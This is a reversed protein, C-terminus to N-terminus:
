NRLCPGLLSLPRTLEIIRSTHQTLVRGRHFGLRELDALGYRDVHGGSAYEVAWVRTIGDFRGDAIATGIPLTRDYWTDTRWFPAALLPDRLPTAIPYTRLALRTRRSPRTGEDFLVADGPRAVEQLHASIEAWDSRNKAYPGRESAWPVIAAAVVVATGIVLAPRWRAALFFLALTMLLAIAPTCLALYRATFGAVIPSTGILVGSPVILWAVILLDAPHRVLGARRRVWPVVAVAVGGLVLAWGLVAFWDTGFWTSVFVSEPTVVDREALFAIQGKQLAGAVILPAAAVAAAGAAFFFPRLVRRRRTIVLLVLAHGVAVLATYMFLYTGFALLVGYAIWLGRVRGHRTLAVVLILTLWTAVTMTMAYSRAEEGVYTTRPLVAVIVGAAVGFPLSRMRRGLLVVGAACIGVALASPFRIAFPSTGFVQIWFHLFLYYTGHVADVHGLEVFLTPLPREASLLSAAEDGWLSPIWSGMASIAVAAVGVLTAALAATGLRHRRPRRIPRLM